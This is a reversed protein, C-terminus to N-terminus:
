EPSQNEHIPDHVRNSYMDYILPPTSLAGVALLLWGISSRHRAPLLHGFVLAVGVGLMFRTAAIVEIEPLPLIAQKM